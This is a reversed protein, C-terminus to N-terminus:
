GSCRNAPLVEADVAANLSASFLGAIRQVSSAALYHRQIKAASDEALMKQRRAEEAASIRRETRSLETIWAWGRHRSIEALPVSGWKPILYSELLYTESAM